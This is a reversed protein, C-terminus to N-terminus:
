GGAFGQATDFTQLRGVADGVTAEALDDGFIMIIEIGEPGQECGLACVEGDGADFGDVEAAARLGHQDLSRATARGVHRLAEARAPKSRVANANRRGCAQGLGSAVVVVAAEAGKAAAASIGVFGTPQRHARHFRRDHM